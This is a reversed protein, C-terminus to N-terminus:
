AVLDPRLKIGLRGAAAAPHEGPEAAITTELWIWEEGDFAVAAVHVPNGRQPEPLVRLGARIDLSRLLALLARASDDCDGLGRELTHLTPSFIEIPEGTFTVRDRVFRHLAEVQGRRSTAPAAVTEALRRVDPLNRAEWEALNALLQVKAMPSRCSARRAVTGDFLEIAEGATCGSAACISELVRQPPAIM